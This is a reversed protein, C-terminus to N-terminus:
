KSTDEKRDKKIIAARERPSYQKLDENYAEIDIEKEPEPKSTIANTKAGPNTKLQEVTNQLQKITENAANLDATAKTNESIANEKATKLEGLDKEHQAIKDARAQLENNLKEMTEPTVEFDQDENKLNLFALIAVWGALLKM